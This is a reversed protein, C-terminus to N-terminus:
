SIRWAVHAPSTNDNSFTAVTFKSCNSMMLFKRVDERQMIYSALCKDTYPNQKQNLVQMFQTLDRQKLYIM